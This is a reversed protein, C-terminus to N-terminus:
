KLRLNLDVEAEIDVEVMVEVRYPQSMFAVWDQQYRRYLAETAYAKYLSSIKYM